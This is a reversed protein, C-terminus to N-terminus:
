VEVRRHTLQIVNPKNTYSMDTQRATGPIRNNGHSECSPRNSNLILQLISFRVFNMACPKRRAICVSNSTFASVTV